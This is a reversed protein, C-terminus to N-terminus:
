SSFKSHTLRSFMWTTAEMDVPPATPLWLSVERKEEITRMQVMSHTDHVFVSCLSHVYVYIQTSPRLDTKGERIDRKMDKDRM